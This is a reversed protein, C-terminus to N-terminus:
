RHAWVAAPGAPGQKYRFTVPRLRFLGRSREDIEDIDRKYRASSALVGVQNSSNIYVTRPSGAALPTGYIGAIFTRTQNLTQGLRMTHSESPVETNGLYINRDGSTL